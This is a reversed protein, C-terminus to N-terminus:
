AATLSWQPLVPQQGQNQFHNASTYGVMNARSIYPQRPALPWVMQAPYVTCGHIEINQTHRADKSEGYNELTKNYIQGVSYSADLGLGAQLEQVSRSLARTFHGGKGTGASTQTDSCGSLSIAKQGREAWLGSNFDCITGSHCADVLVLVNATEDIAELVAEVFDDDRLWVQQRYTMTADDTSGYADVLCFCQDHTENEDDDVSVLQDGHGTYYFVFYDDEGCKSAVEQIKAVVNEKTAQQNWLKELTTVECQRALDEMIDVAFKTDLPNKGAWSVRDCSYDLGVILMHVEGPIDDPVSDCWGPAEDVPENEQRFRRQCCFM